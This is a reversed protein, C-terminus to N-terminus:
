IFHCLYLMIFCLLIYYIPFLIFILITYIRYFLTYHQVKMERMNLYSNTAVIDTVRALIGNFYYILCSSCIWVSLLPNFFPPAASSKLWSELTQIDSTVNKRINSM